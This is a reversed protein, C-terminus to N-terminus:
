HDDKMGEDKKGEVLPKAYLTADSGKSVSAQHRPRETSYISQKCMKHFRKFRPHSVGFSVLWRYHLRATEVFALALFPLVLRLYQNYKVFCLFGVWVLLASICFYYAEKWYLYSYPYRKTLMYGMWVSHYCLLIALVISVGIPVMNVDRHDICTQMAFAQVEVGSRKGIPTIHMDGEEQVAGVIVIRDKLLARNEEISDYRVVPFATNSYVILRENLTGSLPPQNMYGCAALNALSYITDAGCRESLTYTRLCGNNIGKLVNVYGWKYDGAEAFFSKVNGNFVQQNPDYNTLKCGLVTGPLKDIAAMLQSNGEDDTGPMEFILDLVTQRPKCTAIKEITQAIDGRHYQDTMDVITINDSWRVSGGTREIAYYVDTISFDDFAQKIPNFITLNLSLFALAGGIMAVLVCVIVHEWHFFPYKRLFTTRM